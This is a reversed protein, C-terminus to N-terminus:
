LAIRLQRRQMWLANVATIAFVIPYIFAMWTRSGVVSGDWHGTRQLYDVRADSLVVWQLYGYFVFLLLPLWLMATRKWGIYGHRISARTGVYLLRAFALYKGWAIVRYAIRWSRLADESYVTGGLTTVAWGAFLVAGLTFLIAALVFERPNESLRSRISLRRM